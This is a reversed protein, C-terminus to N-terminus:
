VEVAILTQSSNSFMKVNFFPISHQRIERILQHKAQKQSLIAASTAMLLAASIKQQKHQTRKYSPPMTKIAWNTKIVSPM